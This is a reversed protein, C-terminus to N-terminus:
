KSASNKFRDLIEKGKKHGSEMIAERAWEAEMAMRVTSPRSSKLYAGRFNDYAILRNMLVQRKDQKKYTLHFCVRCGLELRIYYLNRTKRHCKPCMYFAVYGKGLHAPEVTVTVTCGVPESGLRQITLRTLEASERIQELTRGFKAARNVESQIIEIGVKCNEAKDIRM